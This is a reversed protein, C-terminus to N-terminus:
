FSSLTENNSVACNESIKAVRKISVLKEIITVHLDRLTSRFSHFVM